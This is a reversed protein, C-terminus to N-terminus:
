FNSSCKGYFIVLGFLVILLSSFLAASGIVRVFWLWRYKNPQFKKEEENIKKLGLLAGFWWLKSKTQLFSDVKEICFNYIFDAVNSCENNGVIFNLIEDEANEALKQNRLNAKASAHLYIFVAIFLLVYGIFISLASVM